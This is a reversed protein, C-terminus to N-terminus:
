LVEVPRGSPDFDKCEFGGYRNPYGLQNAIIRTKGITQDDCEHTHGYVWLTPQHLEILEIMDLSNFAPMLPSNRHQTRPNMVPANHTIVVRSGSREKSFWEKLKSVFTKHLEVADEPRFTSLNPNRILQFDSMQNRATEMARRDRANFDTWMTGGFFHVKGITVEDDLLLKVNPHREDLWARLNAEEENMPRQTYYEHNGTVYLVPKQWHRLVRHLPGYDMLTIIDGALILVDGEAEVPLNWGTLFELHLDSYTLIRM